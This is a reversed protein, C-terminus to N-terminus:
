GALNSNSLVALTESLVLAKRRRFSAFITVSRAELDFPQKAEQIEKKNPSSRKCCPKPRAEM